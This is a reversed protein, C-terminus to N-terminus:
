YANQRRVFTLFLIQIDFWITWNEIYYLDYRIRDVLSTNGRLGNVQAWGTIGPRMEHRPNYHPIEREFQAILEPREPRPGVLSMDGKLVNWFQPLEDLNWERMFAGIKLRRPDNEIAWLAGTNREADMRMSRMKYITFSQGHRGTRVQKYILPGPSEKRILYALVLMIPASGALGVLAGAIDMARKLFQNTLKRIALAEVGLIPVGSITQMRLNSVFVQFFSPIIKFDVYCRECAGAIDLLDSRTLDLDAVVAIDIHHRQLTAELSEIPGLVKCVGPPPSPSQPTSIVGCVWYPQNSDAGIATVLSSAEPSWGIVAVKQVLRDRYRSLTLIRFLIQRWFVMSLFSAACSVAVFLRSIPPEFKFILSTSLFLVLWFFVGKLIIYGTRNPRLLLRPSYLGLYSFSVVLFLTGLILLSAYTSWAPVHEVGWNAMPSRFRVWYGANLGAFCALLDAGFQIALLYNQVLTLRRKSSM